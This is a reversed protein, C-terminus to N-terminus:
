IREGRLLHPFVLVVSQKCTKHIKGENLLVRNLCKNHKEMLYDCVEVFLILQKYSGSEVIGQLFVSCDYRIMGNQETHLVGLVDTQKNARTLIAVFHIGTPLPFYAKCKSFLITIVVCYFQLHMYYILNIMLRIGNVGSIQGYIQRM